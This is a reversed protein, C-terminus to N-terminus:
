KRKLKQRGESTLPLHTLGLTIATAAITTFQPRRTKKNRWSRLTSGTPGGDATIQSTKVGQADQVSIIVDMIPDFEHYPYAKYKKPGKAM